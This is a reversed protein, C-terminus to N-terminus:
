ASRIALSSPWAGGSITSAASRKACDDEINRAMNPILGALSPKRTASPIVRMLTPLAWRSRGAGPCAVTADNGCRIARARTRIITNPEAIARVPRSPTTINSSAHTKRDAPRSSISRRPRNAREWRTNGIINVWRTESATFAPNVPYMERPSIPGIWSRSSAIAAHVRNLNAGVSSRIARIM